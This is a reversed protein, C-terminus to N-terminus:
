QTGLAGFLSALGFLLWHPLRVLRERFRLTVFISLASLGATLLNAAQALLRVEPSIAAWLFGAAVGIYLLTFAHWCGYLVAKMTKNLGAVALMPKIVRRGGAVCHFAVTIACILAALALYSNM